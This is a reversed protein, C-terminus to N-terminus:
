QAQGRVIECTGTVLYSLSYARFTAQPESTGIHLRIFDTTANAATKSRRFSFSPLLVYDGSVGARQVFRNELIANSPYSIHGSVVDITMKDFHNRHFEAGPDNKALTGDDEIGVADKATCRYIKDADRGFAAGSDLILIAVVALAFTISIPQSPLKCMTTVEKKCASFAQLHDLARRLCQV